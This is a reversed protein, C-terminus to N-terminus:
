RRRLGRWLLWIGVVVTLGVMLLLGSWWADVLLPVSFDGVTPGAFGGSRAQDESLSRLGSSVLVSVAVILAPALTATWKEWTRWTKSVWVMAIGFVWGLLPLVIGGFAVLLSALVIYWQADNAPPGSTAPLAASTSKVRPEEGSVGSEARAEAAIFTPDGLEEIRTAAAASDLGALEEAVGDLIDRAVDAPVGALASELEGLYSRVVQPRARQSM